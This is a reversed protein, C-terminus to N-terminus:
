SVEQASEREADAAREQLDRQDARIGTVILGCALAVIATVFCGVVFLGIM